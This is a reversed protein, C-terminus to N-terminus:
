DERAKPGASCGFWGLLTKWDEWNNKIQSEFDLIRSLSVDFTDHKLNVRSQAGRIQRDCGTIVTVQPLICFDTLAAVFSLEHVERRSAIFEDCELYAPDMDYKTALVILANLESTLLEGEVLRNQDIQYGVVFPRERDLVRYGEFAECVTQIQHSIRGQGDFGQLYTTEHYGQRWKVRTPFECMSAYTLAIRHLARAQYFRTEPDDRDEQEWAEDGRFQLDTREIESPVKCAGGNLIQQIADAPMPVLRATGATHGIDGTTLDLHKLSIGLGNLADRSVYPKNELLIPAVAQAFLDNRTKAQRPLGM